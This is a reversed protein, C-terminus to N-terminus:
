NILLSFCPVKVALWSQRVMGMLPYGTIGTLWRMEKVPRSRMARNLLFSKFPVLLSKFFFFFCKEIEENHLPVAFFLIIVTVGNRQIRASRKFSPSSFSVTAINNCIAANVNVNVNLPIM